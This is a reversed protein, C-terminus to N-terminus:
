IPDANVRPILTSFYNFYKGGGMCSLNFYFDHVRKSESM